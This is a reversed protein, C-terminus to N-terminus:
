QLIRRSVQDYTSGFFSPSLFHIRCALRNQFIEYQHRDKGKEQARDNM